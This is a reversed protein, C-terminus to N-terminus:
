YSKRRYQYPLARDQLRLRGVSRQYLGSRWLNSITADIKLRQNLARLRLAAALSEFLAGAPTASARASPLAISKRVQPSGGASRFPDKEVGASSVLRSLGDVMREAGGTGTLSAMLLLLRM